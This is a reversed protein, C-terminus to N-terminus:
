FVKLSDSQNKHMENRLAINTHILTFTVIHRSRKVYASLRHASDDNLKNEPSRPSLLLNGESTAAVVLNNHRHDSYISWRTVNRHMRPRVRIPTLWRLPINYLNIEIDRSFSKFVFLSIEREREQSRHINICNPFSFYFLIVHEPVYPSTLLLTSETFQHM